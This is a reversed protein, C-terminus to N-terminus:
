YYGLEQMMRDVDDQAQALGDEVSKEGLQIAHLPASVVTEWREEEPFLPRPKTTQMAELVEPYRRFRLLDPAGEVKAETLEPSSYSSTRVPDGGGLLAQKIDNEPSELWQIFKRAEDKHESYESVSIVWEALHPVSATGAPVKVFEWKGVTTSTAPDDVAFAGWSWQLCTAIRGSAADNTVEDYTYSNIGEPTFKMMEAWMKTAEISQPSTLAPKLSEYDEFPDGGYSYLFTLWTHVNGFGKAGQAAWGSVTQGGLEKGQFYEVAARWEEMTAPPTMGAEDFLDKRYWLLHPHVTQPIGWLKDEFRAVDLARPLFDDGKTEPAALLDDLAVLHGARSFEPIWNYDVNFLDYSSDKAVFLTGMKDHIADRGILEIEVKVGTAAEYEAAFMSQTIAGWTAPLFIGRLTVPDQARTVGSRRLAAAGLGAAGAAGAQKLVKRRSLTSENLASKISGKVDQTNTM